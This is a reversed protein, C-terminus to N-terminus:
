PATTNSNLSIWPSPDFALAIEGSAGRYVRLDGFAEAGMARSDHLDGIRIIPFPLQASRAFEPLVSLLRQDSEQETDLHLEIAVVQGNSDCHYDYFLSSSVLGELEHYIENGIILSAGPADQLMLRKPDDSLSVFHWAM